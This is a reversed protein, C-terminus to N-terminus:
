LSEYLEILRKAGRESDFREAINGAAKAM